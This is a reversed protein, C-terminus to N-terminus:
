SIDLGAAKAAARLRRTEAILRLAYIADQFEEYHSHQLVHRFRKEWEDLEADTPSNHDVMVTDTDAPVRGTGNCLPCPFNAAEYGWKLYPHYGRGRCYPCVKETPPTCAFHEAIRDVM